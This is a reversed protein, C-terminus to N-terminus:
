SFLLQLLIVLSYTNKISMKWYKVHKYEDFIWEESFKM